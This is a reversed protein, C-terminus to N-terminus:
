HTRVRQAPIRPQRLLYDKFTAEYPQKDLATKMCLLWAEMEAEGIPLHQHARPINIPGYKPRFANPGSLWGSLFLALRDRSETLDKPHMGRVRAAEPMTDMADYFDDVLQRLGPTGRAATFSAQDTGCQKTNAM